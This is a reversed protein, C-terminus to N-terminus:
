TGPIRARAVPAVPNDAIITIRLLGYITQHTVPASKDLSEWFLVAAGNRNRRPGTSDMTKSSQQRMCSWFRALRRIIFDPPHWFDARNGRGTISHHETGRRRGRDIHDKSTGFQSASHHPVISPAPSPGEDTALLRRLRSQRACATCGNWPMSSSCGGRAHQPGRSGTACHGYLIGGRVHGGATVSAERHHGKWPTRPLLM